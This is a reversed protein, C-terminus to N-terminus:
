LANLVGCDLWTTFRFLEEDEEEAPVFEVMRWDEFDENRPPKLLRCPVRSGNM